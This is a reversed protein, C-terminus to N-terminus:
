KKVFGRFNWVFVYGALLIGLAVMVYEFFITKIAYSWYRKAADSELFKHVKDGTENMTKEDLDTPFKLMFDGGDYPIRWAVVTTSSVETPAKSWDISKPPQTIADKQPIFEIRKEALYNKLEPPMSKYFTVDSVRHHITNKAEYIAMPTLVFFVISVYIRQWGNLNNLFSRIKTSM